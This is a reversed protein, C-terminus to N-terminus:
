SRGTDRTVDRLTSWSQEAVSRAHQVSAHLEQLRALADELGPEFQQRLQEGHRTFFLYGAVAGGLAGAVASVVIKTRERM